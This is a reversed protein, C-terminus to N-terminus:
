SIDGIITIGPDTTLNFGQTVIAEGNAGAAGGAKTTSEGQQAPIGDSGGDGGDGGGSIGGAGGLLLTATAGPQGNQYEGLGGSGFAAGGGGGSGGGNVQIAGAGGGGGGYGMEITAIGLIETPCGFRITVGGSTGPGGPTDIEFDGFGGLGGDGGRGRIHCGADCTLILTAESDLGDGDIAYNDALAAAFDRAGIALNIVDGRHSPALLPFQLAIQAEVDYLMALDEIDLKALIFNRRDGGITIASSFPM